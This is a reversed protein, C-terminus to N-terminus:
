CFATTSLAAEGALGVAVMVIGLVTGILLSGGAIGTERRGMM